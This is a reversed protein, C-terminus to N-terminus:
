ENYKKNERRKKALKLIVLNTFFILLLTLFATQYTLSEIIEHSLLSESQLFYIHTALTRGSSFFGRSPFFASNGLIILVPASESIIKNAALILSTIIGKFAYPVVIKWIVAQRSLGLAFAANRYSNPISQFNQLITQVMVPFIIIIMTLSASLLTYGLGFFSVFLALGFLGFIITPSSSLQYIIFRVFKAFRKNKSSYPAYENLYIATFFALPATFFLSGIILILTTVVIGLLGSNGSPIIFNQFWSGPNFFVGSLTNWLVDILIWGLALSLFTFTLIMFIWRLYFLIRHYLYFFNLSYKYVKTKQFKQFLKNKLNIHVFNQYKRELIFFFFLNVVFVIVMIVVAVGFLASEHLRGFNEAIELGILSSLTTISQFFFSSFGESFNPANPGNGAIFAVATVEGIARSFGYFMIMVVRQSCSKYIIDFAVNIRNLGLALGSTKYITPISELLEITLTLTTPLIMLTLVIIAMLMNKPQEVGFSKFLHILVFAGFVGFFISPIGSFVKLVFIIHKKIWQPLFQSIFISSFFNVIFVLIITLLVAYFTSLIFNWIGFQEPPKWKSNFLFNLGRNEFFYISQWIVFTIAAFALLVGVVTFFYAFFSTLSFGSFSKSIKKFNNQEINNNM